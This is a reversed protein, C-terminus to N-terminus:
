NFVHGSLGAAGTHAPQQLNHVNQVLHTSQLLLHPAAKPFLAQRVDLGVDHHDCTKNWLHTTLLIFSNFTEAGPPPACM